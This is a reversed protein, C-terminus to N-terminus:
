RLPSWSIGSVCVAKKKGTLRSPTWDPHPPILKLYSQLVDNLINISHGGGGGGSMLSPAVRGSMISPAFHTGPRSAVSGEGPPYFPSRGGHTSASTPRREGDGHSVISATPSIVHVPYPTNQSYRGFSYETGHSPARGAASQSQNLAQIQYDPPHQSL